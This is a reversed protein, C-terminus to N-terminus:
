VVYEKYENNDTYYVKIIGVKAILAACHECPKSSALNGNKHERYVYISSGKLEEKPSDLIADLEAHITRWPNTSKTHTKYPNNVGVGLIRGKKVVVAAIKHHYQSKFSLKKALDFYKKSKKDLEM